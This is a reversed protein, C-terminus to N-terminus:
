APTTKRRPLYQNVVQKLRSRDVHTYVQTTKINSHGLLEQVVRLDAGGSLLHTAFSHRLMHPHVDHLGARRAYRVIIQWVVVRTIPLGSRSLLLRPSVRGPRVLQPRGGALYARTAEIAPVGIPVIREKNGKGIVRTVGLEMVLQDIRLDAVESARLGGAYMLEIMARDRLGLPTTTDPAEILRLMQSRSLVDPLTQWAAPRLLLEAPNDPVQGTSVLYRFFVRLTAVHRAISSVALGREHLARGHEALLPFDVRGWDSIGRSLLWGVLDHLDRRYADLTAPAFGCEIRCYGLFLLVQPDLPSPEAPPKRRHHRGRSPPPPKASM